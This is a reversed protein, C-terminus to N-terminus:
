AHLCKLYAQITANYGMELADAMLAHGISVEKVDPVTQVFDRLNLLNLDHGANVELGVAQAAVAAAKFQALVQAQAAQGHAQAYPETYLEVRDAGVDRAAAMAQPDADMFLSVRAGLAKAEAVLDKLVAADQPFRWGHDSTFQGQGDPVCTVQHPRVLRVLPMLNHLPNGEINYERDPWDKLLAALDHVDSDRIHRQDPRPHVTIGHAGAQLCLTAARTVSPIGLHRTNRVLAVKNLNVSLHTNM